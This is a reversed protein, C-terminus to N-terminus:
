GGRGKHGLRQLLSTSGSEDRRDVVVEHPSAASPSAAERPEPDATDSSPKKAGPADDHSARSLAASEQGATARDLSEERPGSAVTEVGTAGEGNGARAALMTREGNELGARSHPASASELDDATQPAEAAAAPQEAQLTLLREQEERKLRRLAAIDQIGAQRQRQKQRELAELKVHVDLDEVYAKAEIADVGTGMAELLNGVATHGDGFGACWARHIEQAKHTRETFDAFHPRLADKILDLAVGLVRYGLYGDRIRRLRLGEWIADAISQAPVFEMLDAVMFARCVAELLADYDERREGRVFSRRLLAPPVDSPIASATSLERLPPVTKEDRM